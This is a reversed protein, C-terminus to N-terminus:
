LFETLMDLDHGKTSTTLGIRPSIIPTETLSNTANSISYDSCAFSFPKGDAFNGFFQWKRNGISM